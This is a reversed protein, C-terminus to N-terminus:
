GKPRHQRGAIREADIRADRGTRRDRNETRRGLRTRRSSTRHHRCQPPRAHMQTSLIRARRNVGTPRSNSWRRSTARKVRAGRLEWRDDVHARTYHVVEWSNPIRDPVLSDTGLHQEPASLVQDRATNKIVSHGAGFTDPHDENM